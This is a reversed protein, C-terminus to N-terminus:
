RCSDSVMKIFDAFTKEETLELKQKNETHIHPIPEHLHQSFADSYKLRLASRDPYNDLGILIIKSELLYYSYWRERQTIIETVFIDRHKCACKLKLLARGESIDHKVIEVASFSQRALTLIQELHRETERDL